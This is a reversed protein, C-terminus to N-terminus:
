DIIQLFYGFSDKDTSYADLLYPRRGLVHQVIHNIQVCEKNDYFYQKLYSLMELFEGLKILKYYKENQEGGNTKQAGKKPSIVTVNASQTPIYWSPLEMKSLPVAPVDYMSDLHQKSNSSIPYKRTDMGHVIRSPICSSVTGDLCLTCYLRQTYYCQRAMQASGLHDGCSFCQGQQEVFFDSATKNQTADLIIGTSPLVVKNGAGDLPANDSGGSAAMGSSNLSKQISVVDNGRLVDQERQRRRKAENDQEKKRRDRQQNEDAFYSDSRLYSSLSNKSPDSLANLDSATFHIFTQCEPHFQSAAAQQEENLNLRQVSGNASQGNGDGNGNGNGDGDRDGDSGDDLPEDDVKTASFPPVSSIGSSAASATTSLKHDKPSYFIQAGGRHLHSRDGDHVGERERLAGDGRNMADGGEDRHVRGDGNQHDDYGADGHQTHEPIAGVTQPSASRYSTIEDEVEDDSTLQLFDDDGDDDDDNPANQILTDIAQDLMLDDMLPVADLQDMFQQEKVEYSGEDPFVKKNEHEDDYLRKINASMNDKSADNWKFTAHYDVPSSVRFVKKEENRGSGDGRVSSHGNANPIKIPISSLKSQMRESLNGMKPKFDMSHLPASRSLNSKMSTSPITMTNVPIIPVSETPMSNPTSLAREEQWERFSKKRRVREIPEVNLHHDDVMEDAKSHVAADGHDDPLANIDNESHGGGGDEDPISTLTQSQSQSQAKDDVALPQTNPSDRKKNKSKRKRKKKRKSGNESPPSLSKNAEFDLEAATEEVNGGKKRRSSRDKKPRKKKKKRKRDDDSDEEDRLRKLRHQGRYQSPPLTFLDDHDLLRDRLNFQFHLDELKEAATALDNIANTSMIAFPEYWSKIFERDSALAYLSTALHSENITKRIWARAKGM